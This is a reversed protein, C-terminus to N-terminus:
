NASILQNSQKIIVELQSDDIDKAKLRTLIKSGIDMANTLYVLAEGELKNEDLVDSNIGSSFGSRASNLKLDPNEKILSCIYQCMWGLRFYGVALQRGKGGFQERIKEVGKVGIEYASTLNGIM